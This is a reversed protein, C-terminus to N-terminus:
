TLPNISLMGFLLCSRVMKVGRRAVRAKGLQIQAAGEKSRWLPTSVSVIPFVLIEPFAVPAPNAQPLPAAPSMETQRAKTLTIANRHSLLPAYGFFFSFYLRASCALLAHSYLCSRPTFVEQILFPLPISCGWPMYPFSGSILWTSM